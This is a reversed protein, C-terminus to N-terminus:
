SRIADTALAAQQLREALDRLADPRNGPVREMAGFALHDAIMMTRVTSGAPEGTMPEEPLARVLAFTTDVILPVLSTAASNEGGARLVDTKPVHREAAFDPAADLMTHIAGDAGARVRELMRTWYKPSGAALVSATLPRRYPKPAGVAGCLFASTTITMYAMAARAGFGPTGPGLRALLAFGGLTPALQRLMVMRTLEERDAAGYLELEGDRLDNASQAIVAICGTLERLDDEPLVGDAVLTCAYHTVRGLVGESYTVRPLPKDLNRAMVAAMDTLVSAVRERAQPSLGTVLARIDAIREALLLDLAESDRVVGTIPPLAPPASDSTGNLYEAAALVAAGAHDRDALDEYADLVRCALLAAAAEARQHGPLFSVAIGLNRGAPVLALRALEEPTRAARMAALDPARRLVRLGRALQLLRVDSM